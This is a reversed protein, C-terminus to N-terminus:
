LGTGSIFQRGAAQQLEAPATVSAKLKEHFLEVCDFISWKHAIPVELATRNVLQLGYQHKHFTNWVYGLHQNFRQQTVYAHTYYEDGNLDKPLCHRDLCSYTDLCPQYLGPLFVLKSAPVGYTMTHQMETHEGKLQALNQISHPV